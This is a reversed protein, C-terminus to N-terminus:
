PTTELNKEADEISEQTLGNLREAVQLVRDLAAGSVEGLANVDADSFLDNGDDDCVLMAAIVARLGVKSEAFREGLFDRETASMVRVNVHGGWEPVDVREWKGSAKQRLIHDKSLCGM